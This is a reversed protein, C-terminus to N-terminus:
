RYFYCIDMVEVVNNRSGSKGIQAHFLHHATFQSNDFVDHAWVHCGDNSDDPSPMGDGMKM